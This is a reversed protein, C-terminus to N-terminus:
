PCTIGVPMLHMHAVPPLARCRTKTNCATPWYYQTRIPFAHATGDPGFWMWDQYYSWVPQGDTHCLECNSDLEVSDYGSIASTVFRWGGWSNSDGQPSSGAMPVNGPFWPQGPTGFWINSDYMLSAKFQRGGRQPFSGLPVELHLDGTAANVFGNEVPLNTAFTPVGISNLYDIDQCRATLAVTSVIWTLMILIAWMNGRILSGRKLQNAIASKCSKEVM